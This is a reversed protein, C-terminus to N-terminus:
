NRPSMEFLNAKPMHWLCLRQLKRVVCLNQTKPLQAVHHESKRQFSKRAVVIELKQQYDSYLPKEGKVNPM